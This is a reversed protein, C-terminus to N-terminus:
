AFFYNQEVKVDSLSDPCNLSQGGRKGDVVASGELEFELWSPCTRRYSPAPTREGEKGGHLDRHLPLSIYLIFSNLHRTKFPTGWAHLHLRGMMMVRHDANLATATTVFYITMATCCLFSFGEITNM